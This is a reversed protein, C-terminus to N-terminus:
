YPRAAINVQRIGVDTAMNMMEVVTGHPVRRDAHIILNDGPRQRAQEALAQKFAAMQVEDGALFREDDFFVISERTGVEAGRVSWIAAILGFRAGDQFPATPMDVVVGPQLVLKGDLLVFLIVVLVIDVWPAVSILGQGIRSRPYYRTRLGATSGSIASQNRVKQM